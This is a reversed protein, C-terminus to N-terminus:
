RRVNLESGCYPCISTTGLLEAGCTPCVNKGAPMIPPVYATPKGSYGWAILVVGIAASIIGRVLLGVTGVPEGEQLSDRIWDNELLLQLILFSLALWIMLPGAIRALTKWPNDGREV